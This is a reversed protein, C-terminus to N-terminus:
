SHKSKARLRRAEMPDMTLPRYIEIRDNEKVQCDLSVIESYIGVKNKQLSIEPHMNLINSQKIVDQVTSQSPVEVDHVFQKTSTAYVLTVNM